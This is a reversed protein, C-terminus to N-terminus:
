YVTFIINYTTLLTETLKNKQESGRLLRSISTTDGIVAVVSWMREFLDLCHQLTSMVSSQFTLSSEGVSEGILHPPRIPVMWWRRHRNPFFPFYLTSFFQVLSRGFPQITPDSRSWWPIMVRVVDGTTATIVSSSSSRSVLSIGNFCKFDVSTTGKWVRWNWWRSGIESSVMMMRVRREVTEVSRVKLMGRGSWGRWLHVRQLNSRGTWPASSFVSQQMWGDVTWTRVIAVLAGVAGGPKAEVVLLDLVLEMVLLLVGWYLCDWHGIVHRRRLWRFCANSWLACWSLSRRCWLPITTTNPQRLFSERERCRLWVITTTAYSPRPNSVGWFLFMSPWVHFIHHISTSESTLLPWVNRRRTGIAKSSFNRGRGGCIQTSPEPSIFRRFSTQAEKTDHSMNTRKNREM